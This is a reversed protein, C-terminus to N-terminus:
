QIEFWLLNNETQQVMTSGGSMVVGKNAGLLRSIRDSLIFGQPMVLRDFRKQSLQIEFQLRNGKRKLVARFKNRGGAQGADLVIKSIKATKLGNAGAKLATIHVFVNVPAPILYAAAEAPVGPSSDNASIMPTCLAFLGLILLLKKMPYNKLQLGIGENSCHLYGLSSYPTPIGYAGPFLM